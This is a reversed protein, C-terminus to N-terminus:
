SHIKSKHCSLARANRCVSGCPRQQGDEGIVTVQCTKKLTHYRSKHASFIQSNKCVRGCLQQQGDEGVVTLDCVQEGSHIKSKHCSLARANRCVSGCPRQQGDEGIVTVPCTKQGTHYKSKHSSLARANKCIAGCPRQQDEKGALSLNCTRQKSHDTTQAQDTRSHRPPSQGLQYSETTTQQTESTGMPPPTLTFPIENRELLIRKGLNLLANVIVWDDTNIPLHEHMSVDDNLTDTHDIYTTGTSSNAHNCSDTPNSSMGQSDPQHAQPQLLQGSICQLPIGPTPAWTEVPPNQQCNTAYVSDSHGVCDLCYANTCQPRSNQEPTAGGQDTFSNKYNLPSEDSVRSDLSPRLRCVGNCPYVFCNLDFSHSDQHPSQDGGGSDSYLCNTFYNKTDTIPQPAQQGSSKSPQYQSQDHGSGLLMTIAALPHNQSAEQQEISSFLPSDDSWYNKLLWGAAVVAQIPLWSYPTSGPPAERTTLNLEFAVLLYTAYLLQLSISEINTRKLGYSFSSHRKNYSPLESEAYGKTGAIDSLKGPLVHLNHKISFCKGTYASDQELGIIFHKTILEAQCAVSLSLLLM